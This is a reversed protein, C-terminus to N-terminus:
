GRSNERYREGGTYSADRWAERQRAGSPPPACVKTASQAPSRAWMIPDKSVIPGPVSVPAAPPAVGDHGLEWLAHLVTLESKRRVAEEQSTRQEGRANPIAGVPGGRPPRSAAVTPPPAVFATAADLRPAAARKQEEHRRPPRPLPRLAPAARPSAAPASAGAYLLSSDLQQELAQAAKRVNTSTPARPTAAAREVAERKLKAGDGSLQPQQPAGGRDSSAPGGDNSDDDTSDDLDADLNDGYKAVGKTEAGGETKQKNGM